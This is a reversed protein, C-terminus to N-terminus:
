QPFEIPIEFNKEIRFAPNYFLLSVEEQGEEIPILHAILGNSRVEGARAENIRVELLPDMNGKLSFEVAYFQVGGNLQKTYEHDPIIRHITIVGGEIEIEKNLEIGADETPVTVVVTQQEERIYSITPVVLTARKFEGKDVTYPLTFGSGVAYPVHVPVESGDPLRLFLDERALLSDKTFKMRPDATTARLLLNWVEGGDQVDAFITVDEEQTSALSDASVPAAKKLTGEITVGSEDSYSIRDGETVKVQFFTRLTAEGHGWGSGVDEGTEAVVEGNVTLIQEFDRSTSPPKEKSVYHYRYLLQIGNGSGSLTPDEMLIGNEDTIVVDDTYYLEDSNEVIGFGPVVSFFNLIAAQVPEAFLVAAAFIAISAAIAFRARPRKRKPKETNMKAMTKEEIRKATLVDVSYQREDVGGLLIEMEERSLEEIAEDWKENAQHLKM